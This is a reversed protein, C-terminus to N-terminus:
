MFAGCASPVLLHVLTRHLFQLDNESSASIRSCAAGLRVQVPKRLPDYFGTMLHVKDRRSFPWLVLPRKPRNLAQSSFCYNAKCVLQLSHSRLKMAVNQETKFPDPATIYVPSAISHMAGPERAPAFKLDRQLLKEARRAPFM